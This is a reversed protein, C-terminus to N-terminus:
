RDELIALAVLALLMTPWAKVLPGLPDAWLGPLLLTAAALYAASLGLSALLAIRSTRRVAIGIGILIDAISGAIAAPASLAGAGVTAMFGLGTAYGPGLAVIGTALWFLSLGAFVLPKLLYLGAFWREQVSAPRAALAATLSQPVIGTIDRWRGPDGDAGRSLERRTTSRLPVRWGLLAAFDGLRYLLGAAFRPIQLTRAPPWGLWQRYASILQVLSLREPGALDLTLRAPAQAALFFLVTAVVDDLQVVRLTATDPVVPLVPWTALARFVASGGYATAGVVIAPRLIVWDLDRRALAADAELKTRSFRSPAQQDIGIASIHVVRRPRAQECAAFLAGTGAVHVGHTSDRLSDQLVGACNVVADIGALHPLWEEPRTAAAVDFARWEINPMARAARTVRSAIGRVQYGAAALAATVARGILGTAGVVLVRRGAAIM